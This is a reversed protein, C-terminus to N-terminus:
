HLGASEGDFKGELLDLLNALFQYDLRSRNEGAKELTSRLTHEYQGDDLAGKLKLNKVLDAIAITVFNATYSLAADNM